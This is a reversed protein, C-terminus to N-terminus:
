PANARGERHCCVKQPHALQPDPDRSANRPLLTGPPPIPPSHAVRSPDSRKNEHTGPRLCPAGALPWLFSPFVSIFQKCSTCSSDPIPITPHEVHHFTVPPTMPMLDRPPVPLHSAAQVAEHNFQGPFQDNARLAGSTKHPQPKSSSSLSKKSSQAGPGM